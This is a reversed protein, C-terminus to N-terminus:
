QLRSDSDMITLPIIDRFFINIGQHTLPLPGRPQLQLELSEQGEQAISDVNFRILVELFPLTHLFNLRTTFLTFDDRATFHNVIVPM